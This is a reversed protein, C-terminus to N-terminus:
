AATVALMWDSGERPTPPLALRGDVTQSTLAPLWEGLRPDFWRLLYSSAPLGTLSAVGEDNRYTEGFYALVTLRASDATVEPRYFRENVGSTTTFIEPDPRLSPWDFTEYFRRLHGLHVAGELDIGEYWPLDGWMTAEDGYDWANNWCGQAGYTYGCCGSQFARYAVQRVITADACRRAVPEVTTIGEYMSEGEVIPRGPHAALHERYARTSM